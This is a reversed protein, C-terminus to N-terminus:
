KSSSNKFLRVDQVYGTRLYSWEETSKYAKLAEKTYPSPTHNLVYTLFNLMQGCTSNINGAIGPHLTLIAVSVWCHRKKM